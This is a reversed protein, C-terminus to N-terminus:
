SAGVRLLTRRSKTKARAGAELMATRFDSVNWDGQDWRWSNVAGFVDPYVDIPYQMAGRIEAGTCRRFKGSSLKYCSHSNLGGVVKMGREKALRYNDGFYKSAAGFDARYQAWGFDLSSGWGSYGAVWTMSVRVGLPVRSGFKQRAYQTIQAQEQQTIRRGGNCPICGFDDGTMFGLLIGKDVYSHITALSTYRLYNDVLKKANTISLKHDAVLGEKMLRRPFSCILATGVREAARLAGGLYEPACGLSAGTMQNKGWLDTPLSFMGFFLSTPTARRRTDGIAILTDEATIEPPIGDTTDAGASDLALASMRLSDDTIPTDVAPDPLDLSDTIPDPRDPVDPDRQGGTTCALALTALAVAFRLTRM